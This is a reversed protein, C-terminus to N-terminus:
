WYQLSHYILQARFRISQPFQGCHANYNLNRDLYQLLAVCFVVQSNRLQQFLQDMPLSFSVYSTIDPIIEFRIDVTIYWFPVNWTCMLQIQYPLSKSLYQSISASLPFTKLFDSKITCKTFLLVNCQVWIASSEPPKHGNPIPRFPWCHDWRGNLGLSLHAIWDWTASLLETAHKLRPRFSRRSWRRGNLDAWIAM